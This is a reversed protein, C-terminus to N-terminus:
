SVRAEHSQYFDARIQCNPCKWRRDRELEMWANNKTRLQKVKETMEADCNECHPYLGAQCIFYNKSAFVTLKKWQLSTPMETCDSSKCAPDRCSKCTTCSSVSCPPHLCDLCKLGKKRSGKNTKQREMMKGCGDCKFLDLLRCASCLKGERLNILPQAM